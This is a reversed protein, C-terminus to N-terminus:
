WPFQCPNLSFQRRHNQRTFAKYLCNNKEVKEMLKFFFIIRFNITNNKTQNLENIFVISNKKLTPKLSSRVYFKIYTIMLISTILVKPFFDVSVLNFGM